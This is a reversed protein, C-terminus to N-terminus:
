SVSVPSSSKSNNQNLLRRNNRSYTIGFIGGLKQNRKLNLNFGGNAQFQMNPLAQTQYVNWNNAFEAGMATKQQNTLIDFQSKTTYSNPM